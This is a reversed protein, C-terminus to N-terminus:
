NADQKMQMHTMRSHSKSQSETTSEIISQSESHSSHMSHGSMSGDSPALLGMVPMALTWLGFLCLAIGSVLGTWRQRLVQNFFSIGILAPLSGVGMSFMLVAADTPEKASTTAWVLTSYILGCPLWGWFMGIALAHHPRRAPMFRKLYASIPRWVPMMLRELHTLGRWINALYLGMAILLLGAILRLWLGIELVSDASIVLFGFLLGILAYSLLRGFHFIGNLRWSSSNSLDKHPTLSAAIGGCMFICHASSSLGILMAAIINATM